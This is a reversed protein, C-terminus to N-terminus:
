TRNHSPGVCSNRRLAEIGAREPLGPSPRPTRAGRRPWSGQSSHRETARFQGCHRPQSSPPGRWPSGPWARRASGPSSAFTPKQSCASKEADPTSHGTRALLRVDIGQVSGSGWHILRWTAWAEDWPEPKLPCPSDVLIFAGGSRSAMGVERTGVEGEGVELPGVEAVGVEPLSNWTWNRM